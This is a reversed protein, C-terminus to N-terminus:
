KAGLCYLARDSRILLRGGAVAPSANYTGRDLENTSLLNFRPGAALVFTKGGRAVHYIKGDAAVPSAYFQGGAPLREEYLLKGSSAEVCYAIGLNEHTWYLHGGYLVPSSVNSGKRATWVRNTGTVDGRGGCRVALAGATRGGICYVVGEQAVLSPVMYWPIDTNCSWLEQGTAPDFGLVKGFIAVVLETRGGPLSVLIPTNWSEKIGRARWVERGTRRDLGVLSESEVSANIIVLDRYLVPSNSSGWGNLGSGVDARWVPKGAHDYAFVGTKGFFAYIREADAALTSSAWGHDERIRDQEPLKPTVAQKWVQRGDARNLSLVYLGLAGSTGAADGSYGTLLVRDGVVIPSSTGGGPLDAKWLVGEGASWKVPLGREASVGQGGPGRFQAWPGVAATQASSAAGWATCAVLGVLGLWKPQM